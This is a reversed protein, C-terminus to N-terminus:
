KIPLQECWSRSHQEQQHVGAQQQQQQLVTLACLLRTNPLLQL